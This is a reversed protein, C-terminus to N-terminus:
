EMKQIRTNNNILIYLLEFFTALTVMAVSIASFFQFAEIAPNNYKSILALIGYNALKCIVTSVRQAGVTRQHNDISGTVIASIWESCGILVVFGYYLKWVNHIEELGDIKLLLAVSAIAFIARLISLILLSFKSKLKWHTMESLLQLAVFIIIMSSDANLLILYVIAVFGNGSFISM